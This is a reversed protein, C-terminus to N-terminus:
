DQESVAITMDAQGVARIESDRVKRWEIGLLSRKWWSREVEALRKWILYEVNHEFLAVPTKTGLPVNAMSCLFDSVVVDFPLEALLRNVTQRVAPVRWKWLDVPYTSLWSRSLSGLFRASGQKPPSFPLSIVRECRPLKAALTEADDGTGHTTVLVVQHLRSLESLLQYTRQRGGTNLPWVGGMKVWLIRM